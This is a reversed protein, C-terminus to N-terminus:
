KVADVGFQYWAGVSIRPDLWRNIEAVVSFKHKELLRTLTVMDYAWKHHSPQVTSFLITACVEDLDRLDRWTGLPYEMRANSGDIYRRMVERTDPVVIGLKGGPRLCRYCESLFESAELQDLHELFHGAFVEDLSGDPYPIPPVQLHVDALADAASDINCYELLPHAGSGINIRTAQPIM